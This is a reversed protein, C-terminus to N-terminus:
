TIQVGDFLLLLSAYSLVFIITYIIIRKNYDYKYVYKSIINDLLQWISVWVIFILLDKVFNNFIM